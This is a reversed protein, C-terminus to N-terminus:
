NWITVLAVVPLTVVLMALRSLEMLLIIKFIINIRNM